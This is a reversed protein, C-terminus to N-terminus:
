IYAYIYIHIITYMYVHIEGSINERLACVVACVLCSDRCNRRHSALSRVDGGGGGGTPMEPPLALVVHSPAGVQPAPVPAPLGKKPVHCNAAHKCAVPSLLLVCAPLTCM